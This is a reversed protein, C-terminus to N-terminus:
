RRQYLHQRRGQKLQSQWWDWGKISKTKARPPEPPPEPQDPEPALEREMFEWFPEADWVHNSAM